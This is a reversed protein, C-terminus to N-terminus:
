GLDYIQYRNRGAQKAKYMASDSQRILEEGDVEKLQPCSTVGISATLQFRHSDIFFPEALHQLLLEIRRISSKPKAEPLILIFEDGGHRSITDGDRFVGKMVSAVHVLVRDGILHGYQDNIDKFNDLDVSAVILPQQSRHTHIVAQDLRDYLLSRNPLGTLYDYNARHKLDTEYHKWASIDSFLGVYNQVEGAADCVASISLSEPYVEGNAQRNWIEGKWYHERELEAWLAQYFGADHRGSKLVAPTKGVVEDGYGTIDTFARNIQIIIGKRDTIMIGERSHEFVGASLRLAQEQQKLATIDLLSGIYGIFNGKHDYRPQGQDIFWLYEGDARELRYEMSFAVRRAFSGSYIALCRDYDDPHVGETWGTGFEQELTRGCFELWKQNFWNCGMGTDSMWFLAPSANAITNFKQELIQIVEEQSANEQGDLLLLIDDRLPYRDM